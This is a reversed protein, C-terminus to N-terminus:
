FPETTGLTVAVLYLAEVHSAHNAVHGWDSSADWMPGVIFNTDVFRIRPVNPGKVTGEVAQQIVQNYGDIVTPYRWDKPPCSSIRENLPNYHISRAIIDVKPSLFLQLRQFMKQVKYLYDDMLTPKGGSFSASWQGVAIIVKDCHGVMEGLITKNNVEHPFKAKVWIIRINLTDVTMNHHMEMSARLTRSHSHGVLCISTPQPRKLDQLTTFPHPMANEDFYQFTTAYPEFRNLDTPEICYPPPMEFHEHTPDDIRICGRPQFRTYVAAYDNNAAREDQQHMWFGTKERSKNNHIDTVDIKVNTRTLRHRLPDEVCTHTFDYHIDEVFNECTIAIIEVLYTGSVPVQYTGKLISATTTMSHSWTLVSLAPGSIRGRLYPNPCRGNPKLSVLISSQDPAHVISIIDGVLTGEKNIPIQLPIGNLSTATSSVPTDTNSTLRWIKILFIMSVILAASFSLKKRWTIPHKKHGKM